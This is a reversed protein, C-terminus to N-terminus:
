QKIVKESIISDTGTIIMFYIGSSYTSMDVNLSTEGNHNRKWVVEGTMSMLQINQVDSANTLSINLDSQVPNPSLKFSPTGNSETIDDVLVVTITGFQTLAHTGVSCEYEYNGLETFTFEHTWGSGSPGYSFDMPGSTTTINHWGEINEWVVIDGVEIVLDQPDFYPDATGADPTGGATVTHTTQSLLPLTFISVLGILLTKKM